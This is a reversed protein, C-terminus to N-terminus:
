FLEFQATNQVFRPSCYGLSVRAAAAVSCPPPSIAEYAGATVLLWGARASDSDGTEQVDRRHTVCRAQPWWRPQLGLPLHFLDALDPAAGRRRPEVRHGTAVAQGVLLQGAAADERLPQQKEHNSEEHGRNRVVEVAWFAAHIQLNQILGVCLV